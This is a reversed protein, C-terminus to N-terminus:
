QCVPVHVFGGAAAVNACATRVATQEDMYSIQRQRLEWADHQLQAMNMVQQAQIQQSQAYNLENHLRASLSNTQQVTGITALHSFLEGLGAIRTDITQLHINALAQIASVSRVMSFLEGGVVYGDQMFSPDGSAITNQKLYQPGFALGSPDNTGNLWAGWAGAGFPFPITVTKLSEAWDGAGVLQHVSNWVNTTMNYVQVIQEYTQILQTLQEGEIGVSKLLQAVATPDFVVQGPGVIQANATLPAASLAIVSVAALLLKKM